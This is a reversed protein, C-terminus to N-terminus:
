RAPTTEAAILKDLLVVEVARREDDSLDELGAEAAKIKEADVESLRAAEKVTARAKLRLRRLAAGQRRRKEEQSLVL